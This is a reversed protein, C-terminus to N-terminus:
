HACSTGTPHDCQASGPLTPDDYGQSFGPAHPDARSTSAGVRCIERSDRTTPRVLPYACADRGSRTLVAQAQRITVNPQVRCRRITTGRASGQPMHTLVRHAQELGASREATALPQVSWLTLVRM